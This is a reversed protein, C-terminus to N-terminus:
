GVPSFLLRSAFPSQTKCHFRVLLPSPSPNGYFFPCCHQNRKPEVQQTFWRGGPMWNDPVAFEYLAQFLNSRLAAKGLQEVTGDNEHQGSGGGEKRRCEGM